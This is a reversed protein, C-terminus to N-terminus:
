RTGSNRSSTSPRSNKRLMWLDRRRKQASRTYYGNAVRREYATAQSRIEKELEQLLRWAEAFDGYESESRTADYVHKKARYEPQRCYEVHRDMHAARYARQKEAIAEKNARYHARKEALLEARRPGARRAKDYAAKALRKEDISKGSRRSLGFCARSCYLPHGGRSSRNAASLSASFTIGCHACSAVVSNM